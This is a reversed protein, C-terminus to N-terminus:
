SLSLTTLTNQMPEDRTSEDQKFFSAPKPRTANNVRYDREQQLAEATTASVHVATM